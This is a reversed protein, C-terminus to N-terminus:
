AFKGPARATGDDKRVPALRGIAIAGSSERQVTLSTGKLLRSLAEEVSLTGRVGATTLGRVDDERYLLQVGAQRVYAALAEKLDGGPVHFEHSQAHATSLLIMSSLALASSFRLTKRVFRSLEPCARSM